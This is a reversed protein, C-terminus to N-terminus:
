LLRDITKGNNNMIYTMRSTAILRIDSRYNNWVWILVCLLKSEERQESDVLWDINDFKQSIIEEQKLCSYEIEEAEYYSYGNKDKNEIKVIM